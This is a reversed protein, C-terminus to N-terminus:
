HLYRNEVGRDAGGSSERAGPKNHLATYSSFAFLILTLWLPTSANSRRLTSFGALAAGIPLLIKLDLQNDTAYKISKDIGSFLAGIGSAAESYEELEAIEGPGAAMSVLELPVGAQSMADILTSIGRVADQAYKILLSGTSANYEATRVGPIGRAARAMRKLSDSDHKAAPIRLRVRGASHHSVYAHMAM